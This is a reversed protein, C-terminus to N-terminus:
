ADFRFRSHPSDEHFGRSGHTRFECREARLAFFGGERRLVRGNILLRLPCAPGLRSPWSISLEVPTGPPASEFPDYVLVGGAGLNVTVGSSHRPDRSQELIHYRVELEAAFRSEVRREARVAEPAASPSWSLSM